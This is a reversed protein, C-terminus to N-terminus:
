FVYHFFTCQSACQECISYIKPCFLGKQAGRPHKLPRLVVWYTNINTYMVGKTHKPAMKLKDTCLKPCNSMEGLSSRTKPMESTIVKSAEFHCKKPKAPNKSLSVSYLRHKELSLIQRSPFYWNCKDKPFTVLEHSLAVWGHVSKSVVDLVNPLHPDGELILYNFTRCHHLFFSHVYCYCEWNKPVPILIFFDNGM